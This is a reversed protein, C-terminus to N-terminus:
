RGFFLTKGDDFHSFCFVVRFALSECKYKAQILMYALWVACGKQAQPNLWGAV